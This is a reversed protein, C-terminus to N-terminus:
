QNRLGSSQTVTTCPETNRHVSPLNTVSAENFTLFWLILYIFDLLVLDTSVLKILASAEFYNINIAGPSGIKIKVKM